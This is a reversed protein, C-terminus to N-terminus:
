FSAISRLLRWKNATFLQCKPTTGAHRVFKVDVSTGNEENQRLMRGMWPGHPHRANRSALVQMTAIAHRAHVIMTRRAGNGFRAGKRKCVGFKPRGHWHRQYCRRVGSGVSDDDIQFEASAVM